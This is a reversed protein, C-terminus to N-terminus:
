RCCVTREDTFSLTGAPAAPTAPVGCGGVPPTTKFHTATFNSDPAGAACVTGISEAGDFIGNTKCASNGYVSVTGGTCPTPGNCTCGPCSRDDTAATGATSRKAFGAPCVNKGPKTICSAMMAAAKPACVQNAGCGTGFRAAQCQRGSTLAGNVTASPTCSLPPAPPTAKLFAGAQFQTPIALCNGTAPVTGTVPAVACTIEGSSTVTFSGTACSGGAGACSCSCSANGDGAAVKLDSATTSAACAPPAAPAFAIPTWGAPAEECAFGATCNSDACDIKGDCDNDLGDDCVESGTSKCNPDPAGDPLVGGEPIGGEPIGGEDGVGDFRLDPVSSCGTVALAASLLASSAVVLSTLLVCASRAM